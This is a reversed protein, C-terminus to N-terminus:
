GVSDANQADSFLLRMSFIITTNDNPNKVRRITQLSSLFICNVWSSSSDIM